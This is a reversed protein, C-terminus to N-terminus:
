QSELFLQVSGDPNTCILKNPLWELFYEKTEKPFRIREPVYSIGLPSYFTVILRIKSTNKSSSYYVDYGYYGENSLIHLREVSGDCNKVIYISEKLSTPKQITFTQKTKNPNTCIIREETENLELRYIKSENPFKVEYLKGSHDFNVVELSIEKNNKSSSYQITSSGVSSLIIKETSGDSNKCNFVKQALIINSFFFFIVISLKRIIM